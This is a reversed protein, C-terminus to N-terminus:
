IKVMIEKLKALLEFRLEERLGCIRDFIGQIDLSDQKQTMIKRLEIVQNIEKESIVDPLKELARLIRECDELSLHDLDEAQRRINDIWKLAADQRERERIADAKEGIAKEISDIELSHASSLFKPRDSIMSLQKVCDQLNWREINDIAPKVSAMWKQSQAQRESVLSNRIGLYVEQLDWIIAMEENEIIEKLEACRKDSQEKILKDTDDPPMVINWWSHIDTLIFNLQKMMDNIYDEDPTGKFLQSQETLKQRVSKIEAQNTLKADTIEHLDDKQQKICLKNSEKRAEIKNIYDTIDAGGIEGQALKLNKLLNDCNTIEDKLKWAASSKKPAPQRIMDTASSISTEYKIRTEIQNIIINKHMEAFEAEDDLELVHLNRATREMHFRFDPVNTFSNCSQYELWPRIKGNLAALATLILGDVEELDEKSWLNAQEQLAKQYKKLESGYRIYNNVSNKREAKELEREIFEVKNLHEALMEKAQNVKETIFQFNGELIEPIPDNRNMKVAVNFLELKNRLNEEYELDSLVKKWRQLSDESLFIIKTFKLCIPDIYPKTGRAPFAVSLWDQLAINEDNYKLARPPTERSLLLGLVIGASSSNFGYPPSLLKIYTEYITLNQDEHAAELADLLDSLQKFGPKLRIKGDSGIVKWVQFFLRKVRSQVSPTQTALWDGSVQRGIVSKILLACDKPGNGTKAQFGDFPFPLVSPYIQEFIWQATQKLRLNAINNIGAIVFLRQRLAAQTEERFTRLSREKEEPIFRRFKEAEDAQFKDELVYYRSLNEAIKEDKDHIIITWIPASVIEHKKLLLNLFVSSDNIFCDPDEKANLYLYIVRGKAEDHREASRWENFARGLMEFYDGAHAHMSMFLWDLSSIDKSESFDSEIDVLDGFFKARTTFLEGIKERDLSLLKRKFVQQFQGRTAADAVLEYQCLDRNWEVVGIDNSLFLLAASLDREVLGTALQLLRDIQVKDKSAIRLKDLIMIGSLVLKQSESLRAQYKELLALLTEAIVGGQAREAAVIEQLMSRLVLEAPPITYISGERDIKQQSAIELVDKIFTLASRSQVIDQQRTLFWTTLPHLPWCGEVIVKQFQKSDKWVPLKNIGQLNNCLDTHTEHTIQKSSESELLAKLKAPNRKEILHAFLTELNTSLYLKNASDFRTIYRQLQLLEKHSFRNLYAKLEYQIFGVFRTLQINDQIGQFIQQLTSDGALRPKEAAYELYRGFEDFLIILNTFFGNKGCYNECVTNILDQASERGEVPIWTGNARYYIDDVIQYVNEDNEQLQACISDKSMGDLMKSFDELRIEFNRKVFDEAYTFRPSLELIPALDLNNAKLQKIIARSLESGLHFNSMGDLTVVLSPKWIQALINDVKEGISSDVSKLNDLITQPLPKNIPEMLLKAITLAFHSKGSGYGAVALSLPNQYTKLSDPTFSEVLELVFTATDKLRYASSIADSDDQSVGHYLPGHFVFNKAADAAKEPKEDVWRLQVAGEFFLESKFGVLDSLVMHIEEM